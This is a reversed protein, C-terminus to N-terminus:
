NNTSKKLQPNKKLFQHRAPFYMIVFYLSQTLLFFLYIILLQTANNIPLGLAAAYNGKKHFLDIFDYPYHGTGSMDGFFPFLNTVQFFMGSLMFFTLYGFLPILSFGWLKWVQKSELPIEYKQYFCVLYIIGVLQPFGHLLTWAFYNYWVM